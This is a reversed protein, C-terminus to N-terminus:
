VKQFKDLTKQFKKTYIEDKMANLFINLSETDNDLMLYFLNKYIESIIKIKENKAECAATNLIENMQQITKKKIIKM